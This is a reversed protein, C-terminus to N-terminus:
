YLGFSLGTRQVRLTERIGERRMNDDRRQGDTQHHSGLRYGALSSQLEGAPHGWAGAGPVKAEVNGVETLSPM